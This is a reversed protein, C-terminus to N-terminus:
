ALNNYIFFSDDRMESFPLNVWSNSVCGMKLQFVTLGNDILKSLFPEIMIISSTTDNYLTSNQFAVSDWESESTKEQVPVDYYSKNDYYSGVNNQKNPPYIYFCNMSEGVDFRSRYGSFYNKTLALVFLGDHFMQITSDSCYIYTRNYEYNQLDFTGKNLMFDVSMKILNYLEVTQNYSIIM